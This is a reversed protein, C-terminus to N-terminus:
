TMEQLNANSISTPRRPEVGTRLRLLKVSASGPVTSPVGNRSM